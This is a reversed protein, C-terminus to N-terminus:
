AYETEALEIAAELAALKAPVRSARRGSDLRGRGRGRGPAARRRRRRRDHTAHHVHGDDRGAPRLRGRRRVARTPVGGARLHDADSPDEARGDGDRCSLMRPARRVPRRRRSPRGRGRLRPPRRALVARGGDVQGRAGHGRSMRTLSRQSRPRRAHRARGPGEGVLPPARRRGGGSRDHRRDPVRECSRGRLRRSAGAVLRRARARRARPPVPVPLSERSPARPLPRASVGVDAARRAALPRDPVCRGRPHAGPLARGHGRVRAAVPLAAAGRPERRGRPEAPPLPEELREGVEDRDGALVEVVGAGHDFRVLTEAVVFRSEPFPPGDSPLPVSPELTAAHDYALYGVVPLGLDAAEDFGVVRSGSGIFSNRGLRGREVSELVFSGGAPERLRLYAGLPTILDAPIAHIPTMRSSPQRGHTLCRRGVRGRRRECARRGRKQPAIRM